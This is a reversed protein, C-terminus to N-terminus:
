FAFNPQNLLADIRRKSLDFYKDDQEIGIFHNNNEISAIGTTGSGMFMDMVIFDKDCSASIIRRLLELPKQTPHDGFAKEKLSVTNIAWVSRMQKNKNKIIDGRGDWGKMLDYDFYYGNHKSKSAWILTEHSATFRRCSINPVANPKYWIIENLVWMGQRRIEYGCQYISHYTGSVWLTGTPKLLRKAQEIWNKHFETDEEFGGSRDWEGKNLVAQKGAFVTMGDTSLFYPPDAFIVDVSEPELQKSIEICDGHYLKIKDKSYNARLEQM